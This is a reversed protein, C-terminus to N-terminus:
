DNVEEYVPLKIYYPHSAEENEKAVSMFLYDKDLEISRIEDNESLKSKEVQFVDELGNIRTTKMFSPEGNITTESFRVVYADIVNQSDLAVEIDDHGELSLVLKKGQEINIKYDEM